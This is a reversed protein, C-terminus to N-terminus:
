AARERRALRGSSASSTIGRLDSESIGLLRGGRFNLITAVDSTGDPQLYVPERDDGSEAHRLILTLYFSVCRQRDWKDIRWRLAGELFRHEASTFIQWAAMGKDYACGGQLDYSAWRGRDRGKKRGKGMALLFAASRNEPPPKPM